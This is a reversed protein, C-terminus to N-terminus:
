LFIFYICVQPLSEIKNSINALKASEVIQKISAQTKNGDAINEAISYNFLVPEQSVIGIISRLWQINLKKIDVGDLLIYGSIPDHLRLLLSIVTSKGCGSPGVLANTEGYNVLLNFDNLILTGPRTKYKFYVNKFEIRGIVEDLRIGEESLSDIQSKREIIKFVSKACDNAKNDDPLQKYIENFIILSQAAMCYIVFLNTVSFSNSKIERWGFAFATLQLFLLLCNLISYILAEFHLAVLPKKSKQKFINKFKDIFYKERTLSVVTRINGITESIIRGREESAIIEKVESNADALFSILIFVFLILTLQWNLIFSFIASAM